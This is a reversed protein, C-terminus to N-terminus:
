LLIEVEKLSKVIKTAKSESPAEGQLSLLYNRGVGARLAAEIDRESDGLSVSAGMDINHKRKAKLFMGPEPKRDESELLPCHFVDTIAAEYGAFLDLMYDNLKKFDEETYYGRAVGSQNTVVIIEYRLALACVCLSVIGDALRFDEIKHVYGRDVNIVGDRDLFLAKVM